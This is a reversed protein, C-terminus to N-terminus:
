AALLLEIDEEDQMEQALLAIRAVEMWDQKAELTPLEVPINFHAVLSELWDLRIVEHPVQEDLAKYVKAKRRSKSQAKQIVQQAQKEAALWEDADEVTDFIHIKKGRKVYVKRGGMEFGANRQQVPGSAEGTVTAGQGQLTGTADHTVSGGSRAAAGSISSGQGSLAGSSGFLRLRAAAGAIAAGSATLAGSTDHTVAAGVRAASGALASGPGVLVGTASMARFRNASGALTAGPGTLVGSTAHARFRAAGGAVASGQGTLTGTTTYARFRTAAGAVTSGQGNLAGSSPRETASSAAGVIAAGPGTLAGSTDHSVPGVSGEFLLDGFVVPAADGQRGKVLLDTPSSLRRRRRRALILGSLEPADRTNAGM